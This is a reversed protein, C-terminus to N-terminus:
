DFLAAMQKDIEEETMNGFLNGISGSKKNSVKDAKTDASKAPIHKKGLTVGNLEDVSRSQHTAFYEKEAADYQAIVAELMTLVEKTMAETNYGKSATAGFKAKSFIYNYNKWLVVHDRRILFGHNNIYGKAIINDTSYERDYEPSLYIYKGEELKNYYHRGHFDGTNPANDLLDYKYTEKKDIRTIAEDIAVKCVLLSDMNNVGYVTPLRLENSWHFNRVENDIRIQGGWTHKSDKIRDVNLVETAGENHGCKTLTSKTEQNASTKTSACETNVKDEEKVVPKVDEVVTTAPKIERNGLAAAIEAQIRELDAGITRYAEMKFEVSSNIIREMLKMENKNLM